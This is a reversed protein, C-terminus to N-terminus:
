RARERAEKEAALRDQLIVYASERQARYLRNFAEQMAPTMVRTREDVRGQTKFGPKVWYARGANLVSDITRDGDEDLVTYEIFYDFGLDTETEIATPLLVRSYQVKSVAAELQQDTALPKKEEHCGYLAVVAALGALVPTRRKM